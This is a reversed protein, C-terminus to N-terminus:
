DSSMSRHCRSNEVDNIYVRCPQFIDVLSIAKEDAAIVDYSIIKRRGPSTDNQTEQTQLKM